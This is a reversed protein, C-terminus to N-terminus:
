QLETKVPLFRKTQSRLLTLRGRNRKNRENNLTISHEKEIRPLLKAARAGKHVGLIM